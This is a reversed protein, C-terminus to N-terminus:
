LLWKGQLIKQFLENWFGKKHPIMALLDEQYDSLNREIGHVINTETIDRYSHPIGELLNELGNTQNQAEPEHQYVLQEKPKELHLVEMTAHYIRAIEKLLYLPNKDLVGQGEWALLLRAPEKIATDEPVVLVPYKGKGVIRTTTNGFFPYEAAEKKMGM